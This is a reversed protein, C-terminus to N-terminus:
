ACDKPGLLAADQKSISKRMQGVTAAPQGRPAEAHPSLAAAEFAQDSEGGGAASRRM